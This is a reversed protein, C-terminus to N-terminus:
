VTALASSGFSQPIPYFTCLASYFCASLKALSPSHLPTERSWGVLGLSLNSVLKQIM